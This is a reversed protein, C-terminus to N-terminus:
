NGSDAEDSWYLSVVVGAKLVHARKEARMEEVNRLSPESGGLHDFMRRLGGHALRTGRCHKLERQQRLAREEAIRPHRHSKTRRISSRTYRRQLPIVVCLLRRSATSIGCTGCLACRKAFCLSPPYVETSYKSYFSVNM